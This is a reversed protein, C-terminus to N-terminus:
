AHSRTLALAAARTRSLFDRPSGRNLPMESTNRHFDRHPVVTGSIEIETQIVM